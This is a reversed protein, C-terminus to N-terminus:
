TYWEKEWKQVENELVKREIEYPSIVLVHM